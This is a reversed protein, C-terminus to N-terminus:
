PAVTPAALAATGHLIKLDAVKSRVAQKPVVCFLVQDSQPIPATSAQM